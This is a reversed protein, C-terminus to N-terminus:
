RKFAVAIFNQTFLCDKGTCGTESMWCVRLVGRVLKWVLWRLGSTLGHVIPQDEYCHIQHFGAAKILQELSEKTFAQEHTLDAYRVRSGFLAAANPAHILWRGGTQLVRYVEDSLELLESKTLHEIVDFAVVVDLAEKDLNRLADLLDGQRVDEIGVQHAAAVQEPSTDVGSVHRYGAGKLFRLLTGSGCGLDLIKAERNQPFHKQILYRM